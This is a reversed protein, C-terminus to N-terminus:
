CRELQVRSVVRRWSFYGSDIKTGKHTKPAEGVTLLAATAAHHAAYYARSVADSALDDRVLLKAARLSERARKLHAAVDKM